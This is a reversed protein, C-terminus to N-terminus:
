WDNERHRVYQLVRSAEVSENALTNESLGERREDLILVERTNETLDAFTLTNTATECPRPVIGAGAPYGGPSIFQM